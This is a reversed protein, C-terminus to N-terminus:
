DWFQLDSLLFLSRNILNNNLLDTQAQYQSVINVKDPCTLGENLINKVIDLHRFLSDGTLQHHFLDPIKLQNLRNLYHEFDISDKEALLDLIIRNYSVYFLYFDDQPNM